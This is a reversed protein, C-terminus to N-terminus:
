LPLINSSALPRGLSLVKSRVIQPLGPVLSFGSAVLRSLWKEEQVTPKRWRLHGDGAKGDMLIATKFQPRLFGATSAECHNTRRSTASFRATMSGALVVFKCGMKRLDGSRADHGVILKIGSRRRSLSGVRVGIAVFPISGEGVNKSRRRRAPRLSHCGGGYRRGHRVRTPCLINVRAGGRSHRTLWRRSRRRSM